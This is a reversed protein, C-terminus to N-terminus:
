RYRSLKQTPQGEYVRKHAALQDYAFQYYRYQTMTRVKPAHAYFRKIVHRYKATLRKKLKPKLSNPSPVRKGTEVSYVPYPAEGSDFWEHGFCFTAPGNECPNGLHRAGPVCPSCYQANTFFPAKVLMVDNYEDLSAKYEGDDLINSVPEDGYVQDSWYSELCHHCFFDQEPVHEEDQEGGEKLVIASQSDVVENGCEPCTPEGYDAEFSEHAWEGLDNISIM